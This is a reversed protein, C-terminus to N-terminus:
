GGWFVRPVLVILDYITHTWVAVAFGRWWFLLALFIGLVFRFTFSWVEWSDMGFPVYHFASFILSSVLVAAVAAGVPKLGGKRFAWHLGTLLFLRFFLEEYTGAGISLVIVDLLSMEEIGAMALPPTLSLLGPPSFGLSLLLNVAIGGMLVAWFTSEAILLGWTSTTLTKESKRRAHLWGFVALIALNAATYAIVDNGVAQMLRHTFFDAGNMWGSTFLIGVQYLVFLPATLILSNVLDRSVEMYRQVGKQRM